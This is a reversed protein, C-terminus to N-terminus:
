SADQAEEPVLLGDRLMWGKPLDAEQLDAGQLNAERLNVGRLYLTERALLALAKSQEPTM